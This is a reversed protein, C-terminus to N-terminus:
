INKVNYKRKGRKIFVFLLVANGIFFVIFSLVQGWAAGMYQYKSILLGFLGVMIVSSLVKNILTIMTYGLAITVQSLCYYVMSTVSSLVLIRTYGVSPMYRGATLINVVFPAFLIFLGVICTVGLVQIAIVGLLRKKIREAISQYIDPQFTSNIATQFVNVYTAIQFGVCYYGFERTDGLRELLVRDYGNSFFGLMAAITLPWCFVLMKKFVDWNFPIKLLEKYHNVCYIFFISATLLPALLKGIAGWKLFVVFLVNLFVLVVGNSVSLKNVIHKKLFFSPFFKISKHM